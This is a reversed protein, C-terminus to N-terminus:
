SARTCSCLQPEKEGENPGRISGQFDSSKLSNGLRRWLRGQASRIHEQHEQHAGQLAELVVYFDRRVTPSVSYCSGQFIVANGIGELGGELLFPLGIIRPRRCHLWGPFCAKALTGGRQVVVALGSKLAEPEPRRGWLRLMVQCYGNSTPM